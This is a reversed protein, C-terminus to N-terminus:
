KYNVYGELALHTKARLFIVPINENRLTKRLFRDNTAVVANREKALELLTKDAGGGAYEHAFRTLIRPSASPSESTDVIRYNRKQLYALATKATRDRVAIHKLEELVCGPVIIEYIGLLKDLEKELAIKFQFIMLLANTDLLVEVM